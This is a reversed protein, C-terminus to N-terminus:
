KPQFVHFPLYLLSWNKDINIHEDFDPVAIKIGRTRFLPILVCIYIFFFVNFLESRNIVVDIEIGEFREQM